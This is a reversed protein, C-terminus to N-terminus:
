LTQTGVFDPRSCLVPAEPLGYLVYNWDIKRSIAYADRLDKHVTTDPSASADGGLNSRPHTGGEVRRRLECFLSRVAVDANCSIFAALSRREYLHNILKVFRKVDRPDEKKSNLSVEVHLSSHRVMLLMDSTAWESLKSNKTDNWVELTIALTRRLLDEWESHLRERTKDFHQIAGTAALTFGAGVLGMSFTACNKAMAELVELLRTGNSWTQTEKVMGVLKAALGVEVWVRDLSQSSLRTWREVNFFFLDLGRAQRAPNGEALSSAIFTPIRPFRELDSMRTPDDSPLSISLWEVAALVFDVTLEKIGPPSETLKTIISDLARWFDDLDARGWLGQKPSDWPREPSRWSTRGCLERYRDQVSSTPLSYYPLIALLSLLAEASFKDLKLNLSVPNTGFSENFDFIFEVASYTLLSVLEGPLQDTTAIHQIEQLFTSYVEFASTEPHSGPLARLTHAANWFAFTVRRNLLNFNFDGMLEFLREWSRSKTYINGTAKLAYLSAAYTLLEWDTDKDNVGKSATGLGHLFHESAGRLQGPKGEARLKRNELRLRGVDSFARGFSELIKRNASSPQYHWNEFAEQTSQLLGQWNGQDQLVSAYDLVRDFTTIFEAAAVRDEWSSTTKILWFAAHASSSQEEKARLENGVEEKRLQTPQATTSSPGLSKTLIRLFAAKWRMLVLRARVTAKMM